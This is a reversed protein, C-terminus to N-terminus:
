SKIEGIRAIQEVTGTLPKVVDTGALNIVIWQYSLLADGLRNSGTYFCQNIYLSREVAGNRMKTENVKGKAVGSPHTGRQLAM